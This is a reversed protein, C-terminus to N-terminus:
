HAGTTRASEILSCLCEWEAKRIALKREVTSASAYLTAAVFLAVSVADLVLRGAEFM